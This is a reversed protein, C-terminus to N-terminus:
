IIGKVGLNFGLYKENELVEIAYDIIPLKAFQFAIQDFMPRFEKAVSEKKSNEIFSNLLLQYTKIYNEREEFTFDTTAEITESAIISKNSRCKPCKITLIRKEM